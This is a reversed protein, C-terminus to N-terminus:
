ADYAASGHAAVEDVKVVGCLGVTPVAPRLPIWTAFIEDIHASTALVGDIDTALDVVIRAVVFAATIKDL